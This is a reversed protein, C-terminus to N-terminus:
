IFFKIQLLANHISNGLAYSNNNNKYIIKIKIEIQPFIKAHMYSKLISYKIM